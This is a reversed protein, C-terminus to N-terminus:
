KGPLAGMAGGDGSPRSGKKKDDKRATPDALAVIEDPKLGSAVVM